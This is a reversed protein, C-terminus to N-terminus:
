VIKLGLKNVKKQLKLKEMLVDFNSSYIEKLSTTATLKKAIEYTKIAQEYDRLEIFANIKLELLQEYLSINDSKILQIANDIYNITETYNKLVFHLNALSAIVKVDNPMYKDAESYLKLAKKFNGKIYYIDACLMISKIHNPTLEIALNLKKLASNLNRFYFFDDEAERFLVESKINIIKKNNFYLSNNSNQM